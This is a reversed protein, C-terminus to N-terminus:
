RYNVIFNHYSLTLDNVTRELSPEMDKYDDKIDGDSTFYDPIKNKVLVDQETYIDDIIFHMTYYNEHFSLKMSYTIAYNFSEGKNRIFFANKRYATIVMSNGTVNSVDYSKNNRSLNAAWARSLEILKDNPTTPINVEIADFGQPTLELAPPQANVASFIFFCLLTFLRCM